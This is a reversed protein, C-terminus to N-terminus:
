FLVTGYHWDGNGLVRRFWDLALRLRGVEVGV